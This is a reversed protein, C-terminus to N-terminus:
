QLEKTLSGLNFEYTRNGQENRWAKSYKTIIVNWEEWQKFYFKVNERKCEMYLCNSLEESCSLGECVEKYETTM